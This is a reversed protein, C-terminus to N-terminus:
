RWCGSFREFFQSIRLCHYLFGYRLKGSGNEADLEVQKKAEELLNAVSGNKNPYLVLEKEEKWRSNVWTVKFQRKNELENIPISLQQYYIKKPQKPKFYIFLDKLTGEYTCRIANGPGERYGQSKFFQLHYHDTGLYQAVAMAVQDYTMKQSLELTFGQDNPVCKDCFTM